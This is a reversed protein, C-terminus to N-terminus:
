GGGNRMAGKQPIPGIAKDYNSKASWANGRNNFAGANNPDLRIAEDYDKIAKDYDKKELWAYGRSWFANANQPAFRIAEDFDQIAVDYEKRELAARGRNLPEEAANTSNSSSFYGACCIVSVFAVAIVGVTGLGKIAASLESDGSLAVASVPEVTNLTNVLLSPQNASALKNSGDGTGPRDSAIPTLGTASPQLPAPGSDQHLPPTAHLPVDQDARGTASQRRRLDYEKRKLPDCLVTYAEDLLKLHEYAAPDGPRRDAHWRDTLRKYAAQIIDEDANPSLQLVEYYDPATPWSVDGVPSNPLRPATPVFDRQTPRRVVVRENIGGIQMREVLKRWQESSWFLPVENGYTNRVRKSKKFYFWWILFFVGEGFVSRMVYSLVTSHMDSPLNGMILIAILEIGTGVILRILLYQKAIKRGFPSGSWIKCGVVFGYILVAVWGANEVEVAMKASPFQHFAPKAAEWNFNMEFLSLLPGFITLGVCFFFLWGGVGKPGNQVKGQPDADQATAAPAAAQTRTTEVSM